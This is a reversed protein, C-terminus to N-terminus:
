EEESESSGCESSSHKEELEEEIILPSTVTFPAVINM